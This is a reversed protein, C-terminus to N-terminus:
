VKFSNEMIRRPQAIVTRVLRRISELFSNSAGIARQTRSQGSQLLSKVCLSIESCPENTGSGKVRDTTFGSNGAPPIVM